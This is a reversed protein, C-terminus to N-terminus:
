NSSNKMIIEKLITILNNEFNDITFKEMYRNQGERGMRQRLMPNKILVELKDALEIVNNQHVLIGTIGDKVIEPIAGEFTSIVPLKHMMAELIVIGFTEYYTPLVFIDADKYITNKENGYKAGWYTIVENLGLEKVKSVFKNKSVDGIEGVFNCHFLLSRRKLIQCAELLEFVGKSEILNSFFLLQTKDKENSRKIIDSVYPIGNPCYHVHRPSIYKKVDSFLLKSLLIIEANKFVLRYLLNDIFSDQRSSVGKNHFHYVIKFGFLKIILAILADKYFAKGKATIALYVLNPKFHMLQNLLNKLIALYRLMKFIGKKGIENINKSTGLNIFRCDFSNNIRKSEKINKGVVTSGHIPPPLHLLFLIKSKL